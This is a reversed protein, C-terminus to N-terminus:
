HEDLDDADGEAADDGGEAPDDAGDGDAGELVLPLCTDHTCDEGPEDEGHEAAQAVDRREGARLDGVDERPARRAGSDGDAEAAPEAEDCAAEEDEAAM